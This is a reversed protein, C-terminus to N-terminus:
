AYKEFRELAIEQHTDYVAPVGSRTFSYTKGCREVVIKSGSKIEIEPAIFLKTTQAITTAADTEDAPSSMEFSLRCPQHELTKVEETSVVGRVKDKKQEVVTCTDTYTSEIIKRVMNM